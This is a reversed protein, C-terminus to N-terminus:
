HATLTHAAQTLLKQASSTWQEAESERGWGRERYTHTDTHINQYQIDQHVTSHLSMTGIWLSMSDWANWSHCAHFRGFPCAVVTDAELAFLYSHCAQTVEIVVLSRMWLLQSVRTWYRLAHVIAPFQGLECLGSGPEASYLTNLQCGVGETM